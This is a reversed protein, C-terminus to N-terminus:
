KSRANNFFINYCAKFFYETDALIPHKEYANLYKIESAIIEDFTKPLDVYFPPVLGPKYKIRREKVHEPYLNFYHISLPRVGVLKLQRKFFNILMPLEDIWLKRFLRGWATIRFDNSFKGGEQLSAKEYIFKQLYESYPYMTRFKYVNIINGMKGVRKLKIFPGYSPTEDSLPEKKKVAIFYVLNRIKKLNIIDFGCYFM